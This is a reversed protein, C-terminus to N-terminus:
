INPNTYSDPLGSNTLWQRTKKDMKESPYVHLRNERAFAFLSTHLAHRVADTGSFKLLRLSQANVVLQETLAAGLTEGPHEGNPLHVTITVSLQKRLAYVQVQQGDIIVEDFLKLTPEIYPRSPSPDPSLRLSEMGTRM